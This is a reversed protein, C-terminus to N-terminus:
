DVFKSKESWQKFIEIICSIKTVDGMGIFKGDKIECKLWDNEGNDFHYTRFEVDELNTELIDIQVIWGPNDLTEIKIGYYEEWEGNCQSIYWENIWNLM